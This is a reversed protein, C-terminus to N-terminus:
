PVTARERRPEAARRALLLFGKESADRELEGLSRQALEVNGRKM